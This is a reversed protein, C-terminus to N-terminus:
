VYQNCRFLSEAELSKTQVSLHELSTCPNSIHHKCVDEAFDVASMGVPYFKLSCAKLSSRSKQGSHLIPAVISQESDSQM